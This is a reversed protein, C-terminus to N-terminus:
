EWTFGLFSKPKPKTPAVTPAAVPSPTFSQLTSVASDTSSSRNGLQSVAFGNSSAVAQAAAAVHYQSGQGNRLAVRSGLARLMAELQDRAMGTLPINGEPSFDVHLHVCSLSSGDICCRPMTCWTDNELANDMCDSFQDCVRRAKDYQSLTHGKPVHRFLGIRDINLYTDM